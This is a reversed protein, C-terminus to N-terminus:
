VPFTPHAHAFTLGNQKGDARDATAPLTASTKRDLSKIYAILKQRLVIGYRPILSSRLVFLVDHLIITMHCIDLEGPPDL